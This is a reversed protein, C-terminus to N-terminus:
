RAGSRPTDDGDRETPPEMVTEQFDAMEHGKADRGADYVVAGPPPGAPSDAMAQRLDDAFQRGTQYRAEPRKQLALAVTRAVAASLEPRLQRVDPPEVGAIKHMLEVM